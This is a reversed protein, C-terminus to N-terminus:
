PRGAREADRVRCGDAAGAAHALIGLSSAVTLSYGNATRLRATRATEPPTARKAGSSARTTRAGTRDPPQLRADIVRKAIAQMWRQRLLPAILNARRMGDLGKQSIATFVEINPIGTTFLRHEVDGWPIGVALGSARASRRDDADALRARRPVIKGDRRVRSGGGVSEVATKATGESMGSDGEFGLALHTADPLAQKLKAAVSDTPVVDFGVGPM